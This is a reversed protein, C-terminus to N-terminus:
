FSRLLASVALEAASNVKAEDGANMPMFSRNPMKGSTIPHGSYFPSHHYKAFDAGPRIVGVTEEGVSYPAIQTVSVTYVEYNVRTLRKSNALLPRVVAVPIRDKMSVVGKSVKKRWKKKVGAPRDSSLMSAVTIGEMEKGDVTESAALRKKITATHARAMAKVVKEDASELKDSFREFRRILKDMGEITIGIDSM